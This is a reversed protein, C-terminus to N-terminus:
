KTELFEILKDKNHFHINMIPINNINMKNIDISVENCKLVSTENIFGAEDGNDTGFLYQGICAADFIGKNNLPLTPFFSKNKYVGLYGMDNLIINKHQLELIFKCFDNIANSNPIYIVSPIARAISDQCVTLSEGSCFHKFIYDPSKLLLVDSEIYLVKKLKTSKIFENIAFFRDLSYKWLKDQHVYKLNEDVKDIKVIEIGKKVIDVNTLFYIHCKFKTLYELNKILYEPIKNDASFYYLVIKKM